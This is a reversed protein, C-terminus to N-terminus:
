RKISAIRWMVSAISLTRQFRTMTSVTYGELKGSNGATLIESGDPSFCCDNLVASPLTSPDSQKTMAPYNYIAIYPSTTGVTVVLSKADDIGIGRANFGQGTAPATNKTFVTGSSSLVWSDFSSGSGTLSAVLVTGDSTLKFEQIAAPSSVLSSLKTLTSGSISYPVATVNDSVILRTTEKNFILASVSNVPLSPDALKTWSNNGDYVAFKPSIDLGVAVYRSDRSFALTQAKTGSPVNVVATRTPPNTTLDYVSFSGSSGNNVVACQTGDGNFAAGIVGGTVNPLNVPDSIKTGQTSGTFLFMGSDTGVISIMMTYQTLAAADRISTLLHQAISM